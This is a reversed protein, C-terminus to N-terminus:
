REFVMLNQYFYFKIKKQRWENRWKETIAEDYKLGYTTQFLNIWYKLPKCNVHHNGPQGPIAATLVLYKGVCGSINDCLVSEYKADIHEVVECCTVLDVRDFSQFPLTFDLQKFNIAKDCIFDEGFSTGDIAFAKISSKRKFIENIHNGPGSGFDLVSDFQLDRVVSDAMVQASYEEDKRIHEMWAKSYTNDLFLNNNDNEM